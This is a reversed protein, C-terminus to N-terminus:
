QFTHRLAADVRAASYFSLLHADLWLLGRALDTYPIGTLILLCFLMIPPYIILITVVMVLIRILLLHNLM